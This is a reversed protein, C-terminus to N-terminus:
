ASGKASKTDSRNKEFTNRIILGIAIFILGLLSFYIGLNLSLAEILSLLSLLLLTIGIILIPVGLSLSIFSLERYKGEKRRLFLMIAIIIVIIILLARIVWLLVRISELNRMSVLWHFPIQNSKTEVLIDFQWKDPLRYRYSSPINFIIDVIVKSNPEILIINGTNFSVWNAIEEPAATYGETLSDQSPVMANITFETMESQNNYITASSSVQADKQYNGISLHYAFVGYLSPSTQPISYDSRTSSVVEPEKVFLNVFLPNFIATFIAIIAAAILGGSISVVLPHEHWKKM